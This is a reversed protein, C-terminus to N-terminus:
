EWDLDGTMGLLSAVVSRPKERHVRFGSGESQEPHCVNFTSSLCHFVDVAVLWVCGSKFPQAPSMM